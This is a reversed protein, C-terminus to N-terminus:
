RGNQEGAIRKQYIKLVQEDTPEVGKRVKVMHKIEAVDVVPVDRLSEIKFLPKTKDRLGFLSTGTKVQLMLDDAIKQVDEPGAKKGTRKQLEAVNHEVARWYAAVDEAEKRSKKPDPNSRFGNAELTDSVIKIETRIGNFGDEDGKGKLVKEKRDSFHKWDADSLKDKYTFLNIEKFEKDPMTALEHYAVRDTEIEDGKALTEAYNRLSTRTSTDM